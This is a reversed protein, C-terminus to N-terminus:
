ASTPASGCRARSRRGLPTSLREQALAVYACPVPRTERPDIIEEVAMAEAARFPSARARLAAELEANRDGPASV